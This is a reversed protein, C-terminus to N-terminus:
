QLYIFHSVAVKVYRPFLHLAINIQKSLRGEIGDIGLAVTEIM